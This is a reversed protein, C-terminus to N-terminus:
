KKVTYKVNQLILWKITRHDVQRYGNTNLEIVLSRGLNADAKSLRCTLTTERGQLLQKALAKGEKLQALTASALKERAAVEDVKADFCVTFCTTNATEILAAVKTVALKEETAYVHANHMEYEIIDRSILVETGLCKTSVKDGEIAM